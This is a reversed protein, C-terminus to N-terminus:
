PDNFLVPNNYGFHYTSFGYQEEARSDVGSFRGVQADYQRYFTNYLGTEEELEVGGNYKYSSSLKLAAKSSIGHM